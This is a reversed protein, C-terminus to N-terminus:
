KVDEIVSQNPLRVFSDPLALADSIVSLLDRAADSGKPDAAIKVPTKLINMLQSGMEVTKGPATDGFLFDSSYTFFSNVEQSPKFLVGKSLGNFGDVAMPVGVLCSPLNTSCVGVGAVMQGYGLSADLAGEAGNNVYGVATLGTGPLLVGITLSPTAFATAGVAAFAQIPQQIMAGQSEASAQQLAEYYSGANINMSLGNLIPKRGLGMM